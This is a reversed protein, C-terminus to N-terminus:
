KILVIDAFAATTNTAMLKKIALPLLSGPQVNKLTVPVTDGALLVAINAAVGGYYLGRFPAGTQDVSDSFGTPAFANQGSFLATIISNSDAM